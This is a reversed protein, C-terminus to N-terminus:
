LTKFYNFQQRYATRIEWCGGRITRLATDYSDVSLCSDGFRSINHGLWALYSNYSRTNMIDYFLQVSESFSEYYRFYGLIGLVASEFVGIITGISNCWM